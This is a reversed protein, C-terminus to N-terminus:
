VLGEVDKELRDRGSSEDIVDGRKLWLCVELLEGCNRKKGFRVDESIRDGGCVWNAKLVWRSM